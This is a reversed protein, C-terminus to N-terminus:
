NQGFSMLEFYNESSKPVKQNQIIVLVIVLGKEIFKKLLPDVALLTNIM